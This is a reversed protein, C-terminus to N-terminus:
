VFGPIARVLTTAITQFVAGYPPSDHVGTLDLFDSGQAATLSPSIGVDPGDWTLEANTTTWGPINTSGPSLSEFSLTAANTAAEFSGNVLLAAHARLLSLTLALALPFKSNM